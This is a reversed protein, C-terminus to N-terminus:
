PRVEKKDQASMGLWQLIGQLVEERNSRTVNVIKVGTRRKIADTFPAPALMITGFVRVGTDLLWSVIERFAPSFLEMKGIEDIVALKGQEAARKLASVGIREFADVDVGYRSVRHMSHISTHALIASEGDLTVLRFGARTGKERIEETYFGGAPVNLRSLAERILSTKGTGPRGTLLYVQEMYWLLIRCQGSAAEM